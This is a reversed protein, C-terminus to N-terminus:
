YFNIMENLKKPNTINVRRNTSEILGLDHLQTFSRSITEIKLGLYSAIDERSMQLNYENAHLGLTSIRESIGYLFWALKKDAKLSGMAMLHQNLKNVYQSLASFLNDRFVPTEVLKGNFKKLNITCLEINELAIADTHHHWNQFGDLGMIEGPFHFDMIQGHGNSLGVESKLAGSAIMFISSFSDGNTYIIQGKPKNVRYHIYGTLKTREDEPITPILCQSRVFCNACSKEIRSNGINDIPGKRTFTTNVITRRLLNPMENDHSNRTISGCVLLLEYQFEM